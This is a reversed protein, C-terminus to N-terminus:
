NINMLKERQRRKFEEIDIPDVRDSFFEVLKRRKGIVICIEPCSGLSDMYWWGCDVKKLDEHMNCGKPCGGPKCYEEWDEHELDFLVTCEYDGLMAIKMLDDVKRHHKEHIESILMLKEIPMTRMESNEDLELRKVDALFENVIKLQRVIDSQKTDDHDRLHHANDMLYLSRTVPKNQPIYHEVYMKCGTEKLKIGGYMIMGMSSANDCKMCVLCHLVAHLIDRCLLLKLQREVNGKDVRERDDNIRNIEKFLMKTHKFLEDNPPIFMTVNCGGKYEDAIKLLEEM